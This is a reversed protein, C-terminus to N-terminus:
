GFISSHACFCGTAPGIRRKRSAVPPAAIAVGSAITLLILSAILGYGTFSLETASASPTALHASGLTLFPATLKNGSASPCPTPFTAPPSIRPDTPPFTTELVALVTCFAKQLGSHCSASSCGVFIGTVTRLFTIGSGSVPGEPSVALSRAAY